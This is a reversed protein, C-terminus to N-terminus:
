DSNCWTQSVGVGTHTMNQGDTCIYLGQPVPAKPNCTMTASTFNVLELTNGQSIKFFECPYGDSGYITGDGGLDKGFYGTDALTNTGDQVTGIVSGGPWPSNDWATDAVVCYTCAICNNQGGAAFVRTHSAIYGAILVALWAGLFLLKSTHARKM